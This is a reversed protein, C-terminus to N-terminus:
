LQKTVQDFSLEVPTEREFLSVLVTLKGSTTNIESITGPLGAFSGEKITITEGIEFDVDVPIVRAPQAKSKKSKTTAGQEAEAAKEAEAQAEQLVTTKLMDFVEKRRLPLPDHANGVFGTVGPTRRVLEWSDENLFMRVLVYGPIRVRKVLKYQGNRVERVTEIPVQVELVDDGGAQSERRKLISNKVSKEYGAYSHIVYWDGAARRLERRFDALVREEDSVEAAEDADAPTEAADVNEAVAPEDASTAEAADAPAATEATAEDVQPTETVAQETEEEAM